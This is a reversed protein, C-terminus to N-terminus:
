DNKRRLEFPTVSSDREPAPGLAQAKRHLRKAWYKERAEFMERRDRRAWQVHRGLTGISLTLALTIFVSISVSIDADPGPNAMVQRTFACCAVELLLCVAILIYSLGIDILSKLNDGKTAYGGAEYLLEWYTRESFPTEKKM